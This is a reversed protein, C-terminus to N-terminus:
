HFVSIAWTGWLRVTVTHRFCALFQIFSGFQGSACALTKKTLCTVIERAKRERGNETSSNELLCCGMFFTSINNQFFVEQLVEETAPCFCSCSFFSLLILDSAVGLLLWTTGGLNYHLSILLRWTGPTHLLEVFFELAPFPVELYWLQENLKM